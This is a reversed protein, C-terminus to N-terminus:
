NGSEAVNSAGDARLCPAISEQGLRQILHAAKGANSLTLRGGISNDILVRSQPSFGQLVAMAMSSYDSSLLPVIGRLEKLRLPAGLRLRRDQDAAPPRPASWRSFFQPGLAM